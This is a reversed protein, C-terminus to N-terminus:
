AVRSGLCAIGQSGSHHGVWEIGAQGQEAEAQAGAEKQERKVQRRFM